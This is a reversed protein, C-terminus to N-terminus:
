QDRYKKLQDGIMDGLSFGSPEDNAPKEYARTEKREQEESAERISLSVRRDAESVELVKAQVQQGEELV